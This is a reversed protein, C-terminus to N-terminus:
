RLEGVHLLSTLKLIIQRERRGTSQEYVSWTVFIVEPCRCIFGDSRVYRVGRWIYNRDDLVRNDGNKLSHLMEEPHMHTAKIKV